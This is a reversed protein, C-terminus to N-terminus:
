NRVFSGGGGWACFLSRGLLFVLGHKEGVSNKAPEGGNVPYWGVPQMLCPFRHPEEYVLSGRRRWGRGARAAEYKISGCSWFATTRWLAM